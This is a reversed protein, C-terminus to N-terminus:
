RLSSSEATVKSLNDLALQYNPNIELAKLYFERAKEIDSDAYTTGLSNWTAEDKPNLELAKLFCRRQKAKDKSEAGLNIWANINRSDVELAKLYCHRQIFPDSSDNGLANYFESIIGKEFNIIQAYEHKYREMPIHMEVFEKEEMEIVLNPDDPKENIEKLIKSLMHVNKLQFVAGQANWGKKRQGSEYAYRKKTPDVIFIDSTKGPRNQFDAVLLSSHRYSSVFYIGIHPIYKKYLLGLLYTRLHCNMENVDLADLPKHTSEYGYSQVLDWLIELKKPFNTNPETHDIVQQAADFLKILGTQFRHVFSQGYINELQLILDTGLDYWLPTITKREKLTLSGKEQILRDLKALVVQEALQLAPAFGKPFQNTLYKEIQPLLKIKDALIDKEFEEWHKFDPIEIGKDKLWDSYLEGYLTNEPLVVGTVTRIISDKGLLFLWLSDSYRQRISEQEQGGEENLKTPTINPNIELLAIDKFTLALAEAQSNEGRIQLTTGLSFLEEVLTQSINAQKALLIAADTLKRGLQFLGTSKKDVKIGQEKLLQCAQLIDSLTPDEHFIVKGKEGSVRQGNGSSPVSFIFELNDNARAWEDLIIRSFTWPKKQFLLETGKAIKAEEALKSENM